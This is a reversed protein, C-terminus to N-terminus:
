HKVVCEYISCLIEGKEADTNVANPLDEVNRFHFRNLILESM